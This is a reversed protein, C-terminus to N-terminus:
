PEERTPLTTLRDQQLSAGGADEGLLTGTQFRLEALALALTLQASVEGQRALTLRDRQSILNIFTSTGARLKKEENVVAREFLHVAETAKALQLASRRVSDLATPVDAGISKAVLDVVLASQRRSAQIQQLEGRARSNRTPWSLSLSVLSSVGPVNRGLPSFFSGTDTGEVFGTYSPTFILDLQPKLGNEAARILFDLGSQRERAARLDARRSLAVAVLRDAEADAPVEEPRLVPFPDTPLPLASIEAPDLGIERGLDQRAAFLRREGGIRSSEKAALNAELQVLEGAPTQDAEVLRRTTELLERSSEESSILVELDLQAARTSWYQSAVALVRGATTQRLDLESAAVEREASLENAAVVDRGRGQLLPQRFRLFVNGTNAGPSGPAGERDLVVGPEVSLGTRFPKLFSVTNRVTQQTRSASESTPVESETRTGTASVLPDFPGAAAELLGRSSEVRAEQLSINPDRALTLRVSELLGLGGLGGPGGAPAPPVQSPAATGGLTGLFFAVGLCSRLLGTQSVPM